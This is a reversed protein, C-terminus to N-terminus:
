IFGNAGIKVTKIARKKKSEQKQGKEGKKGRKKERQLHALKKPHEQSSVTAKVM